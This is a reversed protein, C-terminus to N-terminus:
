GRGGAGPGPRGTGAAGRAALGRRGVMEVLDVLRASYGWENDYWAVVKALRGGVVMTLDPDVVASQYAGKFDVSVLPARAVDLFSKLPGAAAQRYADNIDAATAPRDLVAVLDVVSVTPVPVRFALGNMRGDLEPLVDGIARAAGTTTPVISIAAARARRLDRHPFDLLNQDQTYAHITSMLGERIGFADQLAKATVALCNTTCSANSLVHHRDPDYADWNVGPVVTLDPSKAPASIIVKRAGGQTIHLEAKERDTFRGTSEVVVEVGLDAWPLRAPDRESLVRLRRGDIVIANGSVEVRGTYRGYNSDYQFLHALTAPDTLDNCAVLEIDAHELAIRAFRRGIAGFGNIGVRVAV